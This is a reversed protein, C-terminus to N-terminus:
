RPARRRARVDALIIERLSVAGHAPEGGPSLTGKATAQQHHWSASFAKMAYSLARLSQAADIFLIVPCM